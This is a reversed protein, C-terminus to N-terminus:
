SEIVVDIDLIDCGYRAVLSKPDTSFTQLPFMPPPTSDFSTM